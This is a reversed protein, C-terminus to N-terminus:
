QAVYLILSPIHEWVRVIYDTDWLSGNESTIPLLRHQQAPSGPLSVCWGLFGGLIDRKQYFGELHVLKQSADGGAPPQAWLPQNWWTQRCHEKASIWHPQESSWLPWLSLSVWGCALIQVFGCGRSLIQWKWFISKDLLHWIYDLVHECNDMMLTM